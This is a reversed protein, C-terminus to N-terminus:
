PIPPTLTKPNAPLPNAPPPHQVVGCFGVRRVFLQWERLPQDGRHLRALGGAAVLAAPLRRRKQDVAVLFPRREIQADIVVGIRKSLEFAEFLHAALAPHMEALEKGRALVRGANGIAVDDVGPDFRGNRAVSSWLGASRSRISAPCM